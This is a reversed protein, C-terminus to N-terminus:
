SAAVTGQIGEAKLKVWAPRGILDNWWRALNPGKATMIDMNARVFTLEYYLHFLDVLTLENGALYKQKALIAEYVDLKASFDAKIKAVVAGDIPLGRNRKDIEEEFIRFVLPCLNAFEVSAAQEFLAKSQLGTPLLPTGQEAYKEALYRCIS